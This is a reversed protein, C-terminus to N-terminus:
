GRVLTPAGVYRRIEDYAEACLSMSTYGYSYSESLKGIGESYSAIGQLQRERHRNRGKQYRLLHVAQYANARAVADRQLQYEINFTNVTLQSLNAGQYQWPFDGYQQDWLGEGPQIRPFNLSQNYFFKGGQYVLSDINRTGQILSIEQKPVITAEWREYDLSSTLIISTANTLSVYCNAKPSGYSSDLTPGYLRTSSRVSEDTAM